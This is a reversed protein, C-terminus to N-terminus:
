LEAALPGLENQVILRPLKNATLCSRAVSSFESEAKSMAILESALERLTETEEPSRNGKPKRAIRDYKVIRRM